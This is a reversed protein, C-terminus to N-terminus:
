RQKQKRYEAEYKQWTKGYISAGQDSSNRVLAEFMVIKETNRTFNKYAVDNNIVTFFESKLFQENTYNNHLFMILDNFWRNDKRVDALSLDSVNVDELRDYVGKKLSLVNLMFNRLKADKINKQVYHKAACIALRKNAASLKDLEELGYNLVTQSLRYESNDQLASDVRMIISQKEKDSLQKGKAGNCATLTWSLGAVLGTTKLINKLKMSKM